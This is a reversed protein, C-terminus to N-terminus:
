RVSRFLSDRLFTLIEAHLVPQFALRDFGEPDQSPPFGPKTMSPPFPSQFSFHGANPVVRHDIRQPHPVGRSILEAHFAPTHEDREATRMLIPLDVDALAGEAMFWPSAPALLVLARVRPDRVVPLARAQGHPEENPFSSPRGGAVALATYGGLSHGIVGVGEPSLWKGLHENAAVADLVLRVHRPRNELNAATGALRNDSRSNGPHELLAVVFGARALHAAMGRYTWPSGGTGHSIVVLPLREGEVPADPAVALPYPGFHELHEPARTPYLVWVPIRAGQVEDAVDLARCGVTM